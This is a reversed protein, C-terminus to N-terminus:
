WGNERKERESAFSSYPFMNKREISEMIFGGNKGNFNRKLNFGSFLSVSNEKLVQVKGCM